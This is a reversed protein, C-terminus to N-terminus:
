NIEYIMPNAKRRFELALRITTMKRNLQTKSVRKKQHIHLVVENEHIHLVIPLVEKIPIAVTNANTRTEKMVIYTEQKMMEQKLKMQFRVGKKQLFYLHAEQLIVENEHFHVEKMPIAVTNANNRTEEVINTKRKTM